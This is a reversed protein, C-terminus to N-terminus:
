DYHHRRCLRPLPSVRNRYSPLIPIFIHSLIVDMHVANLLSPHCGTQAFFTGTIPVIAREALIDNWAPGAPTPPRIRVLSLTQTTGTISSPYHRTVGMLMHKEVLAAYTRYANWFLSMPQSISTMRRDFPSTLM